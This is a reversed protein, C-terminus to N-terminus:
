HMPSMKRQGQFQRCRQFTSSQEIITMYTCGTGPDQVHRLRHAINEVKSWPVQQSLAEEINEMGLYRIVISTSTSYRIGYLTSSPCLRKSIRQGLIIVVPLYWYRYDRLRNNKAPAPSFPGAVAEVGAKVVTILLM